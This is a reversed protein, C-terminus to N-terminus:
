GRPVQVGGAEGDQRWRGVPHRPRMRAVQWALLGAAALLSVATLAVGAAFSRPRFEFRVLSHGAPVAVGRLVYDTRFVHAPRGNVWARWGPYDVDSLVLFAPGRCTTEVLVEAPALRVLGATAGPGPGGGPLAPPEEELLAVGEPDYAAGGPLRSEHVAGLVAEPDLRLVRPVLWARPRARRNEFVAVEGVDAVRRWRGPEALRRALDPAAAGGGGEASSTPALVYRAGLLDLSRDAPDLCHYSSFGVYDVGLFRCYRTLALPSYGLVSPLGWLRSRNPPAAEARRGVVLPALRQGTRALEDRYPLLGAPPRLVDPTEAGHRWEAFWGFSGLDVVAAAFLLAHALAGPQRGWFWLAALSVTFVGLPILFAPAAWSGDSLRALTAEPLARTYAGSRYVVLFLAALAAAGALGVLTSRRLARLRVARDLRPLRAVALGALVGVALAFHVFHRAPIRFRNYVPLHYLLYPLPTRAGLALLLSAAAVGLWFRALPRPRGFAFGLGALLLPLLGVYGTAETLGGGGAFGPTHAGTRPDWFGGCCYPFLLRPLEQAPLCYSVFDRFSLTARLSQGQLELTPVLQVGALGLGLAVAALATAAYTRSGAPAGWGLLLVYLGGVGLGYVFFQPHGALASCAVAAAGALVWGPSPRRRLRELAWLLLPAWAASHIVNTHGLHSMFFGSLGYVAGGVFAAPRSGTLLRVYGYTFCSALVYASLVFANWSNPLPALLLAPPYWFLNQPDGMAPFGAFLEPAWLSRPSAYHPLSLERADGPALLGGSLLVPAFFAGYLLSFAALVAVGHALGAPPRRM